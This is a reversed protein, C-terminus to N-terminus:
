KRLSQATTEESIAYKPFTIRVSIKKKSDFKSKAIKSDVRFILEVFILSRFIDLKWYINPTWLFLKQKIFTLFHEM